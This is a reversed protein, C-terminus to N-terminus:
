GLHEGFERLTTMTESALELLNLESYLAEIPPSTTRKLSRGITWTNTPIFERELYCHSSNMQIVLELTILSQTLRWSRIVRVEPSEVHDM